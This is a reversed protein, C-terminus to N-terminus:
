VGDENLLRHLGHGLNYIRHQLSADDVFLGELHSVYECSTALNQVMTLVLLSTLWSVIQREKINASVKFDRAV